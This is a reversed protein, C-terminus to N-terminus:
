SFDLLFLVGLTWCIQIAFVISGLLLALRGEKQVDQFRIKLGIGAMAIIVLFHSINGIIQINEVSLLSFTPISATLVFGIIFLPIPLKKQTKRTDKKANEPFIRPALFVLVFVLPILMVIRSMKVITATQEAIEGIASGAALAHGVAQLTNGALIGSSIESLHFVLGALIPILFIGITGLFNIIAISIGVEEEKSELIRETAAIASNGCVGNGIGILLALKPSMKFFYKGLFFSSSITLIMGSVVLFFTSMGLEQLVFFNLKVGMLAIAVSLITRESYSVGNKITKSFKHIQRKNQLKELVNGFLVGFIIALVVAGLPLFPDLFFAILAIIVCFFIGPLKQM